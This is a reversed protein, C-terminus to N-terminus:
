IALGFVDSREARDAVGPSDQSWVQANESSLEYPSGYLVIVAGAEPAAGVDKFPVGIALDFPIGIGLDRVRHFGFNSSSLTHGFADGSESRGPVGPADQTWFQDGDGTLGAGLVAVAGANTATQSDESPIGIALTSFQTSIRVTALSAGFGDGAEAEDEIGLTDQTL